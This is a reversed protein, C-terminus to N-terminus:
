VPQFTKPLFSLNGHLWADYEIAGIDSIFKVYNSKSRWVRSCELCVLCSYDSPTYKYGNFASYNCKRHLVRWRHYHTEKHQCIYGGSM